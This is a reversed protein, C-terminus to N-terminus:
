IFIIQAEFVWCEFDSLRSRKKAEKTAENLADLPKSANTNIILYPASYGNKHMPTVKVKM